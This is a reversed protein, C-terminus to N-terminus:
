PLTVFRVNGQVDGIAVEHGDAAFAVSLTRAEDGSDYLKDGEVTWVQAPGEFASAAALKRRPHAALNWIFGSRFGQYGSSEQGTHV